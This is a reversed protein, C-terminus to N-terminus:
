LNFELSSGHGVETKKECGFSFNTPMKTSIKTEKLLNVISKVLNQIKEGISQLSDQV